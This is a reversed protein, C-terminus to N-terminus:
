QKMKRHWTKKTCHIGSLKDTKVLVNKLKLLDTNMKNITQQKEELAKSLRSISIPSRQSGKLSIVKNLQTM